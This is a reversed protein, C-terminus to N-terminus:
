EIIKNPIILNMVIEERETKVVKSQVIFRQYNELQCFDITTKEHLKENLLIIDYQNFNIERQFRESFLELLQKITFFDKDLKL